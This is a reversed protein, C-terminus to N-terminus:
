ARMTAQYSQRLDDVIRDVLANVQDDVLTAAPDQFLLSLAISKKGMAVGKGQYVDFPTVALLLHGASQRISKEIVQASVSEDIVIAIDRCVAPFKGINQYSPVCDHQLIATNLEFLYPTVSLGLAAVKKPHLAGLVGVSHDEIFLEAAQGPHLVTNELVQWHYNVGPKLAAIIQEIDGKLDFFDVRQDAQSWHVDHRRGALVGAVKEVQQLKGSQQIFCLGVEFLRVRSVQHNLNYQLSQLLGPWLSTRMVSMEQNLPNVLNLCEDVAAFHSQIDPAIFSYNIAEHYGLNALLRPLQLYPLSPKAAQTTLKLVSSAVPLNEYGMMRALEELLDAEIVLDSRYSPPLVQWGQDIAVIECGLRSLYTIVQEGTFAVGLIRKIQTSRLLIPYVMPLYAVNTMENASCCEGGCIELLLQVFRQIAREQELYDVGREFRYSADTALKAQRASCTIAEPTFYASEVVIHRTKESVATAAAGMVGAIAQAQQADAIVLSEASLSVIKGDLLTIQEGAKAFRVTIDDGQWKDWDFAHLPQGFELMVYNGIDVVPHVARLGSRRLRERMWLPTKAAPNIDRIMAVCYRPCARAAKM